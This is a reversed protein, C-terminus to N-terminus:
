SNLIRQKPVTSTEGVQAEMHAIAAALKEALDKALSLSMVAGQVNVVAGNPVHASVALYVEGPTISLSFTNSHLYQVHQLWPALKNQDSVIKM